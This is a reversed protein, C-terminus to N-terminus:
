SRRFAVATHDDPKSPEGPAPDDMRRRCDALLRRVGEELPGKRIREVVEDLHLNDFVGDSALLLTDRAALVRPAGIEIHMDPAGLVNSVLHREEHHLAERADLLGSEVAFGVPSHAVTALKLRGRQGVLLIGSDGVHYPRVASDQIEVAALTTAPGGLSLIAEQASEIADLIATRLPRGDEAAQELAARLARVVLSSARAGGASGGVGDAVALVAARGFPILVAADENVAKGPGRGSFVVACGPGVDVREVDSMESDLYLRAEGLPEPM